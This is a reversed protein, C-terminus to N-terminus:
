RMVTSSKPDGLQLSEDDLKATFAGDDTFHHKM